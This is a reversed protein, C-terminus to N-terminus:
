GMKVSPLSVLIKMDKFETNTVFPDLDVNAKQSTNDSIDSL